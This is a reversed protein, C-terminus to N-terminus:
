IRRDQGMYRNQTNSPPPVVQYYKYEPPKELESKQFFSKEFVTSTLCIEDSNGYISLHRDSYVPLSMKSRLNQIPSAMEVTGFTKKYLQFQFSVNRFHKVLNIAVVGQSENLPWNPELSLSLDVPIQKHPRVFLTKKINSLGLKKTSPKCYLGVIGTIKIM